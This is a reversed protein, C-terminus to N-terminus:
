LGIITKIKDKHICSPNELKIFVIGASSEQGNHLLCLFLIHKM